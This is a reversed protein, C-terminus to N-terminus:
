EAFWCVENEEVWRMYETKVTNVALATTRRLHVKMTIDKLDLFGAELDRAKKERRKREQERWVDDEVPNELCERARSQREVAAEHTEVRSCRVSSLMDAMIDGEGSSGAGSPRELRGTSAVSAVAAAGSSRPGCSSAQVALSSGSRGALAASAASASAATQVCSMGAAPTVVMGDRRSTCALQQGGVDSASEPGQSAVDLAPGRKEAPVSDAGCEAGVVHVAVAQTAAGDIIPSPRRVSEDGQGLGLSKRRLVDYEEETIVGDEFHAKLKYLTYDGATLDGADLREKVAALAGYGQRVARPRVSDAVRASADGTAMARDTTPDLSFSKAEIKVGARAGAAFFAGCM